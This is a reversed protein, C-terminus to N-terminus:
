EDDVARRLRMIQRQGRSGGFHFPRVAERQGRTEFAFEGADASGVGAFADRAVRPLKGDHNPEPCDADWRGAAAAGAVCQCPKARLVSDPLGDFPDRDLGQHLDDTGTFRGDCVDRTGCSGPHRHGSKEDGSPILM